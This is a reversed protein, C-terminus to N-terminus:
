PVGDRRDARAAAVLAAVEARDADPDCWVVVHGTVPFAQVGRVGRLQDLTDELAVARGPSGTLWPAALRVRGGADAVVRVAAAGTM